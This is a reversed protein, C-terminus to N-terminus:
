LEVETPYQVVGHAAIYYTDSCSFSSVVITYTASTFYEGDNDSTDYKYPFSGPAVGGGGTVPLDTLACGVFLHTESFLYNGAASYTVELDDGDKTVVLDGVNTGVEEASKTGDDDGGGAILPTTSPNEEGPEFIYVWGWQGNGNKNFTDKFLEGRFSIQGYAWFTDDGITIITQKDSPTEAVVAFKKGRGYKWDKYKDFIHELIDKIKDKDFLPYGNKFLRDDNIQDSSIKELDFEPFDMLSWITVQVERFTIEPDKERLQDKINLFYNLPKWREEGYTSYLRINNHAADTAIPTDWHICWAERSGDNIINNPKINSFDAKFYSEESEELSITTNEAGEILTLDPVVDLSEEINSTSNQECASLYFLGGAVVLLSLLIRRVRKM